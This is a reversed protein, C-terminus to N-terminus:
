HQLSNFYEKAVFFWMNQFSEILSIQNIKQEMLFTEGLTSV